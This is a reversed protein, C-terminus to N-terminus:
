QAGHLAKIYQAFAHMIEPEQCIEPVGNLTGYGSPLAWDKLLRNLEQIKEHTTYGAKTTAAMLDQFTFTSPDSVAPAAPVTVAPAAPAVVPPAVPAVPAAPQQPVVVPEPVVTPTPKGALEAEVTALLESSVLKKTTWSGDQTTTKGRSHIREDWPIMVGPVTRAPHREVGVEPASVPAAPAAPASVPAAPAAPATETSCDDVDNPTGTNEGYPPFDDKVTYGDDTSQESALVDFFVSAARAVRRDDAPVTLTIHKDSM